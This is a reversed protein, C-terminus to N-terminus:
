KNEITNSNSKDLSLTMWYLYQKEMPRFKNKYTELSNKWTPGDNVYRIGKQAIYKWFDIQAYESLHPITLDSIGIAHAFFKSKNFFGINYGLHFSSICNDIELIRYFIRDNYLNIPEKTDKKNSYDNIISLLKAGYKDSHVDAFSFGRM